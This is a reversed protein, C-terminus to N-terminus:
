HASAVELQAYYGSRTRAKLGPKGIKIEISHYENPDSGALSDFSLVYYANADAICAAIQGSLDNNPNLVRGGSQYALVQLGLDADQVKRATPAGKLYQEYSILRLNNADALGLPDVDYLTIRARRLVDSLAVIREFVLQQDHLRPASATGTFLNWGPSIWVLLKRGPRTTEYEALQGLKDLSLQQRDVAGWYGQQPIITRVTDKNQDLAAVIANGDRSPGKSMTMGSDSLYAMSVPRALKGGDRRLFKKIQEREFAVTTFSTNVEDVLLIVQVPGDATAPRGSAAQFSAIERPQKNDMPTFDQQQLGSVPKGSKDTVVVDLTIRHDASGAPVTAAPKPQLAPGNQQAFGSYLSVCFLCIWGGRRISM